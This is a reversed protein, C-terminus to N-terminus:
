ACSRGQFAVASGGDPATVLTWSLKTLRSCDASSIVQRDVGSSARGNATMNYQLQVEFSGAYPLPLKREGELGPPVFVSASGASVGSTDVIVWRATVPDPGDNRFVLAVGPGTFPPQPDPDVNEASEDTSGPFACGSLTAAALLLALLARRM